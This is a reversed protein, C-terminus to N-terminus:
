EDIREMSEPVSVALIGMVNAISQKACWSLWLRSQTVADDEGVVRCEAYFRHFCEGLRRALHTLRHPARLEAATTINGPLEAIERMLDAESETSLVDLDAEEIPRLAIGRETATRLISAIRAHAYQVYFVPNDLSQAKAEEIDFNIAHDSSAYLLTFRVADRGVEDLLEALTIFDGSRKSMKAPEGGRYLSVMQYLVIEIQDTDYGLAKAAGMLRKVTGHHDAGWVYILHDFGRSFKDMVYACDAAFYTPVGDSKILVRDKEDGFDTAKFFVAGDQEFAHGSERLQSVARDIEGKDHLTRESFYTDMQVGLRDLTERIWVFMRETALQQIRKRREEAPLDLLADGHEEALEAAVDAIYAGQYGDEPLEADRGFHELYRAEVSAGFLDMQRGADNFYYEREIEDGAAALLGALADGLVANRATGIHLPGVPNASVYEVQIKRGTPEGSGYRDGQTAVERLAAHLWGHSVRFNIFGPGAVDASAIVDNPPLNEVIAAAIERPTPADQGANSALAMAVNTTFDGFERKRPRDLEIEVADRDGWAAGSGATQIADRILAALKSEIMADGTGQEPLRAPL